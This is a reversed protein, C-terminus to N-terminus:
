FKPVKLNEKLLVQAKPACLKLLSDIMDQEALQCKEQIAQFTLEVDENFLCLISAQFCNVIIQYKKKLYNTELQLSGHNYM